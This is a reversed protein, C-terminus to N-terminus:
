CGCVQTVPVLHRGRGTGLKLTGKFCSGHTPPDYHTSCYARFPVEVVGLELRISQDAYTSAYSNHRKRQFEVRPLEHEAGVLNIRAMDMSLFVLINRDDLTAGRRYVACHCTNDIFLPLAPEVGFPTIRHLPASQQSIGAQHFAFTAVAVLTRTLLM